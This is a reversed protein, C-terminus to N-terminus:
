GRGNPRPAAGPGTKGDFLREELQRSIDAARLAEAHARALDRRLRRRDWDEFGDRAPHPNQQQKPRRGLLGKLWNWVRKKM